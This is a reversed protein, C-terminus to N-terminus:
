QKRKELAHAAPIEDDSELENVKFIIDGDKNIVNGQKDVLYGRRNVPKDGRDLLEGNEGKLIVFNGGEDIEFDGMIHDLEFAPVKRTAKAKKKRKRRFTGQGSTADQSSESLGDIVGNILGQAFQDDIEAEEELVIEMDSDQPEEEDLQLLERLYTQTRRNVM